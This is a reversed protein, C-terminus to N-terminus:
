LDEGIILRFPSFIRLAQLTAFSQHKNNINLCPRIQFDTDLFIINLLTLTCKKEVVPLGGVYGPGVMEVHIPEVQVDPMWLVPVSGSFVKDAKVENM